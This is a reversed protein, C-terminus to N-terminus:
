YLYKILEPTVNKTYREAMFDHGFIYSTMEAKKYSFTVYNDVTVTRETVELVIVVDNPNKNSAWIQGIEFTCNM